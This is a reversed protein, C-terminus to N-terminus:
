ILIRLLGLGVATVSVITGAHLLNLNTFAFLVELRFGEFMFDSPSLESCLSASYLVFYDDYVLFCYSFFTTGICYKIVDYKAAELQTKLTHIEQEDFKCTACLHSLRTM